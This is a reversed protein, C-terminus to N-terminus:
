VTFCVVMHIEDGYFVLKLNHNRLMDTFLHVDLNAVNQFCSYLDSFDDERGFAENVSM